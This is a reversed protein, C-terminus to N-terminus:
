RASVRRQRQLGEKIYKQREERNFAINDVHFDFLIYASLVLREKFSDLGKKHWFKYWLAELMKEIEHGTELRDNVAKEVLKALQVRSMTSGRKM